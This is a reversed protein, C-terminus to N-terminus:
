RALHAASASAAMLDVTSVARRDPHLGKWVMSPAMEAQDGSAPPPYNRTPLSIEVNRLCAPTVEGRRDDCRAPGGSVYQGIGCKFRVSAILGGSCEGRKNHSVGNRIAYLCQYSRHQLKAIMSRVLIEPEEPPQYRRDTQGLYKRSPLCHTIGSGGFPSRRWTMPPSIHRDPLWIRACSMVQVEVNM